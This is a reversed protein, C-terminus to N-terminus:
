ELLQVRELSETLVTLPPVFFPSPKPERRKVSALFSRREEIRRRRDIIFRIIREIRWFQEPGKVLEARTEVVDMLERGRHARIIVRVTPTIKKLQGQALCRILQVVVERIWQTPSRARVVEHRPSDRQEKGNLIGNISTVLEAQRVLFHVNAHSSRM